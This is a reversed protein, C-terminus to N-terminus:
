VQAPRGLRNLEGRLNQAESKLEEMYKQADVEVQCNLTTTASGAYLTAGDHRSPWGSLQWLPALKRQRGLCGAVGCM